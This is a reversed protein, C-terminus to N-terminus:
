EGPPTGLTASAKSQEGGGGVWAFSRYGLNAKSNSTYSLSDTPMKDETERTSPDYSDEEVVDLTQPAPISGLAECM